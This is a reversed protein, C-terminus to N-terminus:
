NVPDSNTMVPGLASHSAPDLCDFSSLVPDPKELLLDRRSASYEHVLEKLLEVARKSDWAELCQNLQALLDTLIANELSSEYAQRILPHATVKDTDSLLLEEFLKEGARLGTFTIAIDGDPNQIDRVTCGSLEVMQRALDVLKVPEGMDLVFVEGGRAMGTAQLVLQAAEPITMFYRTIEPHTVTVPGGSAIQERFLPVVSGSSGLVNGFRVMSCIPGSGQEAVRDAADQVLLECVRKSAGMVNTPRVAKDTSILTFRKLGCAIAADLASRTGFINNALGACVNAEVLPVHKYAAAHLLVTIGLRRLLMEMRPQDAVDALVPVLEIGEAWAKGYLEQHIAYLAFENRELLVLVKPGQSLVRRCLASGISGGAGTVLVAEGQVAAQLLEPIPESPERGLLEEIAVPRLESVASQGSAIQALSPMAMVELGMAKLQRVLQSRRSLPTSPMALLVQRIRQKTILGELQDPRHITLGQVKRGWLQPKDDLLGVISFRLDFRLSELLRLGAEGAGYILTKSGQGQDQGQGQGQGSWQLGFRLLDRLVIRSGMVLASLLLWFLLWFSRPPQPGGHLTSVLLLALVVLAARPPFGYLSLSGSFRTLGRYWGSGLFTVLGIAIAVPLLYSTNALHPGVEGNLRLALAGWFSAAILGADFVLLCLRRSLV